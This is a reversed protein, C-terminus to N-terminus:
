TRASVPVKKSAPGHTELAERIKRIWTSSLSSSSTIFPHSKTGTLVVIEREGKPEVGVITHKLDKDKEGPRLTWESSLEFPRGPKHKVCMLRQDTLVLERTKRRPAGAMALLRSARRRLASKEVITNFLVSEGSLLLSSWEEDDHTPGNGQIPTQARNRGRELVADLGGSPPSGESSSTASGTSYSDRLGNPRFPVDIPQTRVAAPIDLTPSVTDRDEDAETGSDPPESENGNSHQQTSVEEPHSEVFRVGSSSSSSTSSHKLGNLPRPTHCGSTKEDTVDIGNSAIPTEVYPRIENLPGVPEHEYGGVGNIGNIASFATFSSGNTSASGFKFEDEGESAWSIEDEDRSGDVLEDWAAGVDEWTNVGNTRGEPPPEKKVLGPELPPAPDTWLTDWRIPTFFPHARLAQMDNASGPPGAGLRQTPDRVLLEEVLDKAQEDFGDPFTYDIQKIKQWTLYESLGQFAFRGSIMQFIICGLAWLDSSKSTESVELLEPSIYQATGVWTKSREAGATLVKGTGFDTLKLRFDDDLLLNEPKLDRHIIGKTHMYDLADILQATLYRACPIALSGLRSIRSQLEGNRALDLVFFLSWEDQFTWHLHVIGPHGAGLRVLTNKEALATALKNNRKLHGKDLVKIAYEQGTSRHKALMVTSYSGEGLVRGFEFDDASIRGNISSNRSRSQGRSPTPPARLETPKDDEEPVGLERALYAPPRSGKPTRPSQPSRSRM